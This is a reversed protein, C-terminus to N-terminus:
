NAFDFGNTMKFSISDPSDPVGSGLDLIKEMTGSVVTFHYKGNSDIIVSVSGSKMEYASSALPSVKQTGVTCAITTVKAMPNDNLRSVLDAKSVVEYSGGGNAAYAMTIGSGAYDGNPGNEGTTSLVLVGVGNDGINGSSTGGAYDNDGMSWEPTESNDMTPTDDSDGGCSALSFILVCFCFFYLLSKRM